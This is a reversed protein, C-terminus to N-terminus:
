KHMRRALARSLKDAEFQPEPLRHQQWVRQVIDISRDISLGFGPSVYLPQRFAPHRLQAGLREDQDWLSVCEESSEGPSPQGCLRRKSVGITSCQTMLGVAVAVGFRRPHLRGTGDVLIVQALRGQRRVHEIVQCMAPVERFTLYGPIYPFTVPLTITATHVVEARNWDYAVYAAVAQTPSSYSLDVAAVVRPIEIDAYCQAVPAVRHQWDALAKLPQATHFANWLVALDVRGSTSVTIGEHVLREAQHQRQVIAGAALDGNRRVVRFWPINTTEQPDDRWQALQTAVWRAAALDGLAEALAGFTTVQGCPIEKVLFRLESSLDPIVPWGTYSETAGRSGM